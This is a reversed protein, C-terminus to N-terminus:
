EIDYKFLFSKNGFLGKRAGLILVDDFWVTYDKLMALGEPNDLKLHKMRSGSLEEFELYNFENYVGNGKAASAYTMLIKGSDTINMDYSASLVGASLDNSQEKLCYTEWLLVDQINFSYLMLSGTIVRGSKEYWDDLNSVTNSQYRFAASEIYQKELVIISKEYENLFVDSIVYHMWDDEAAYDKNHQRLVNSTQIMGESLEQYNIKDILQEKFDFKSYMVGAFQESRSTLNFVYVEDDNLFKLKFGYRKSSSSSIDLFVNDKTEMNYKILAIRGGKDVNLIFLEGKNNIHIGYNVFNNDIPVFGSSLVNLQQDYIKAQAILYKQSYDFIYLIFKQGDPSFNVQYTYDLPTVFNRPQSSAIASVFSEEVGAKGMESTWKGIKTELLVTTNLLHGKEISFEYLKCQSTELRSNHVVSFLRLKDHHQVMKFFDEEPEFMVKESFVLKLDKTYKELAYYSPGMIGGKVKALSIFEQDSVKLTLDRDDPELYSTAVSFGITKNLGQAFSNATFCFFFLIIVLFGRM